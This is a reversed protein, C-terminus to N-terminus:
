KNTMGQNVKPQVAVGKSISRRAQLCREDSGKKKSLRTGHRRITSPPRRELQSIMEAFGLRQSDRRGFSKNRCMARAVRHAVRM